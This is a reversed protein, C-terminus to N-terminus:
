MACISITSAMLLTVFSTVPTLTHYIWPGLPVGVLGLRNVDPNKKIYALLDGGSM